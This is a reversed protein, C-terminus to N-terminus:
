EFSCLTDVQMQSLVQTRHKLKDSVCGFLLDGSFGHGHTAMAILDYDKKDIEDLKEYRLLSLKENEIIGWKRSHIM